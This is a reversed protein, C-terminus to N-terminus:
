PERGWPKVSQANQNEQRKKKEEKKSYATSELFIKLM